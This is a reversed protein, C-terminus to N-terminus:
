HLGRKYRYRCSKQTPIYKELEILFVSVYLKSAFIFEVIQTVQGLFGSFILGLPTYFASPLAYM